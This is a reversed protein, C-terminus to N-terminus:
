HITVEIDTKEQDCTLLNMLFVSCFAIQQYKIELKRIVSKTTPGPSLVSSRPHFM